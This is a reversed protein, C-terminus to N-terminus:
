FLWWGFACHKFDYFSNCLSVGGVIGGWFVENSSDSLDGSCGGDESPAYFDLLLYVTTDESPPVVVLGVILSCLLETADWLVHSGCFVAFWEAKYKHLVYWSSVGSGTLFIGGGSM